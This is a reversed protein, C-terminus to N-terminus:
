IPPHLQSCESPCSATHPAYQPIPTPHCTSYVGCYCIGTNHPYTNGGSPYTGGGGDEGNLVNPKDIAKGDIVEETKATSKIEASEKKCAVGLTLAFALLGILLSKM